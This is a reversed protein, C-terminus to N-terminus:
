DGKPLGLLNVLVLRIKLITKGQVHGVIKKVRQVSVARIQHCLAYSDTILGENKSVPVVTWWTKNTTTLPIIILLGLNKSGRIQKTPVSVVISPRYGSQESGETSGLELLVIDGVSIKSSPSMQKIM